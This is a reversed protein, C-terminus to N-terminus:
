LGTTCDNCRRPSNTRPGLNSSPVEPIQLRRRQWIPSAARTPSGALFRVQIHAKPSRRRTWQAVPGTNTLRRPTSGRNQRTSAPRVTWQAIPGQIPCGMLSDFGRQRIRLGAGREVPHPISITARAPISGLREPKFSRAGRWFRLARYVPPRPRHQDAMGPTDLRHM